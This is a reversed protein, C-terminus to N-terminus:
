KVEVDKALKGHYMANSINVPSFYVKLKKVATKIKNRDFEVDCLSSVSISKIQEDATMTKDLKMTVTKSQGPLLDFYDDSFPLVSKSSEIRVLRAFKDATVNIEIEDDKIEFNYNLTAEPLTCEKEKKLLVVKQMVQKGGVYLRAAIGTRAFNYRFKLKDLDISFLEKNELKSLNVSVKEDRLTGREFDFIEYEVEAKVDKNLDNLAFIKVYKDTDELSVSVPANFHRANYQLAKYNGYYDYSAWSCVPWCDNFQWYMSGNCRGKNRRWHETADSICESQTVWSLYVYDKFNKPLHFRSAIYYIMKDNGNACKQHATFEPGSLSYNKDKAFAEITKMDPLSEFGFESCFRTMRKRYYNMPQLGHWVGWLHTDGVNDSSVGVNHSIGIPSGQTYPTSGDFKRIEPELIHYFFKETWDVYNKMYIWGMHMDEIENNGNWVALSAHHNLRKVNFAVEKKVNELFSEKFFPYAQCAFQFDQWILIGMEDCANYFEDSEYYGGGWIRLMNMNSFRVADLTSQLRESDFRPMFSDPPIYNAGKIFLPVGNLVFQFQKGYKDKERNLEITRLGIKKSETSVIKRGCKVTAVVEYLPQKDKGSLEYTWWLEPKEIEFSASEGKSKLEEGNPCVLKIETKCEAFAKIETDVSVSVKGNEHAQKVSMYEIKAGSVFELEADSGIGSPPLVPGWDWGFHCQPKRIHVIGNQGNSNNPASEKKYIEAVYNVPSYFVVRVENEGVTLYEKVDFSHYIFCNDGSYAKKGNVFVDCITDLIKFNMLIEDSKLEEETIEFTKKYEWDKEGVWKVKEEGLSVFPDEIEGLAMLDLFNCGPVTADKWQGENLIRFKWKGNLSKKM